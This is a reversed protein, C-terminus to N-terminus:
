QSEEKPPIETTEEQEEISYREQDTPRRSMFNRIREEINEGSESPTIVEPTQPEDPNFGEPLKLTSKLPGGYRAVPVAPDHHPLVIQGERELRRVLLAVKRQAESTPKGAPGDSFELEERIIEAKGQTLHDLIKKRFDESRGRLALVLTQLDVERLVTKLSNSELKELDEFLFTRSRLEEALEPRAIKLNDLMKTQAEPDLSEYIAIIRDPGGILYDLRRKLDQEIDEVQEPLLQKTTALQDTIASQMEHDMKSLVRSIWEPPLYGLVVAAKDPTERMLLTALNALHDERIFGFPSTKKNPNEVLLSGQFNSGGPGGRGGGQPLLGMAQVQAMLAPLVQAELSGMRSPRNAANSDNSKLTPLVQVFRNLFGRLPGFVFLLFVAICFLILALSIIVWYSKLSGQFRSIASEPTPAVPKNFVIRQIELKDGRKASLSLIQRTLERVKEVTEDPLDQDLVLTASIRKIFHKFFRPDPKLSEAIDKMVGATGDLNTRVPVGPLFFEEELDKFNGSDDLLKSLAEVRVVVVYQGPPLMKSLAIEVRQQMKIELALKEGDWSTESYLFGGMGAWFFFSLLAQRAAANLKRLMREDM